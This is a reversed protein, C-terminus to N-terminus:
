FKWERDCELCTVFTTMPEDASRTQMQYYDCKSKKKCRSCFLYIAASINKSYLKIETEIIKDLAEKWRSPCMEEVSMDVFAKPEIEGNLLKQAWLHKNNVYGDTRLNEYIAIAKDRYTNSFVKNAWDVDIGSNKCQQVIYQLIHEELLTAIETNTTETLNNIVLTRIPCDVFVNKTKTTVIKVIPAPRANEEPEESAVDDIEDEDEDVEEEDDSMNFSWEHYLTEYESVTLNLYSTALKDYDDNDSSSALIVIYGSYSEEDLPSPLMHPNSDEEDDAVKAFISLWRDENTPDPIKGQFQINPQRYKKRIWELVDLTKPPINLEALVGSSSVSTGLVM